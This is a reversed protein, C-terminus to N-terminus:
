QESRDMQSSCLTALSAIERPDRGASQGTRPEWAPPQGLEAPRPWRGLRSRAHILSYAFSPISPPPPGPASDTPVARPARENTGPLWFTRGCPCRRWSAGRAEGYTPVSVGHSASLRQAREVLCGTHLRLTVPSLRRPPPWRTGGGSLPGLPRPRQKRGGAPPRSSPGSGTSHPETDPVRSSSARPHGLSAPLLSLQGLVSLSDEYPLSSVMGLPIYAPPM